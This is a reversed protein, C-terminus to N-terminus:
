RYLKGVRSLINSRKLDSVPENHELKDITFDVIKDDLETLKTFLFAKDIESQEIDMKEEFVAKIYDIVQESENKNTITEKEDTVIEVVENVFTTDLKSEIEAKDVM